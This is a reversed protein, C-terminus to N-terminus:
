FVVSNFAAPRVKAKVTESTGTGRSARNAVQSWKPKCMNKSVWLEMNRESALSESAVSHRRLQFPMRAIRGSLVQMYNIPSEIASNM